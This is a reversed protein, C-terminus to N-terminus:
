AISGHDGLGDPEEIEGLHTGPKGQVADMFLQQTKESYNWAM